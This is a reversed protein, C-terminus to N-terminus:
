LNIIKERIQDFQKKLRRDSKLRSKLRSRNASVTSYDVKFIKGIQRQKLNCYRYCLEMAMQRVRKERSKRDLLDAPTVSCFECVANIVQDASLNRQLSRSAPVERSEKRPLKEKVWNVFDQTGLISQHMVDEFPNEIEEDIGRLVYERYQRRGRSDDGGFYSKLLRRFDVGAIRKRLYCYGVFSSWAYKKLYAVKARLDKNKFRRIRV